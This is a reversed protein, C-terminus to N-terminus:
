PTRFSMVTKNKLNTIVFDGRCIVDMGILVAGVRDDLKGETLHM